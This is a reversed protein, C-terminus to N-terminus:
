SRPRLTMFIGNRPRLTIMPQPVVVHGPVLELRYRQAVDAIALQAEMLAFNNGICTRPGGGFPFYAYQPRGASALPSFREPDFGEPNEWFDPHRHTVYSSLIVTSNAPIDYDDFKDSGISERGIEWAPPYLRMSENLVQQTYKLNKLDFLTPVRGGLVESLEAYLRREVEPHKSLLYWTWSLANATTEHGALFITMVEDRLQKESMTEGTEEDRAFVLMSLLDGTDQGSQRRENILGYVVSDLTKLAQQFRANEETPFNEPLAFLSSIRNNAHRLVITLAQGVDSAEDSIDTTFLTCCVITITLRMMENTINIPEGREAFGKWRKLMAQIAHTMTESFAGIRDRHFAPQMLKRERRWLDDESTLLGQGLFSELRRYGFSKRYNKNNDQLVHKIHNPHSALYLVRTGLRFRVVDGYERRLNLLFNLSDTQFNPLSGIIPVDQPGPPINQLREKQYSM